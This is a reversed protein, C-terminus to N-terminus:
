SSLAMRAFANNKIMPMRLKHAKCLRAYDVGKESLFDFELFIFHSMWPEVELLNWSQFKSEFWEKGNVVNGEM